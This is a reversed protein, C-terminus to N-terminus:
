TIRLNSIMREAFFVSKLNKSRSVLKNFIQWNGSIKVKDLSVQYKTLKMSDLRKWPIELINSIDICRNMADSEDTFVGLFSKKGNSYMVGCLCGTPKVTMYFANQIELKM